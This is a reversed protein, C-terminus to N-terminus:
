SWSINVFLTKRIPNRGGTIIESINCNNRIADVALLATAYSFYPMLLRKAKKVIFQGFTEESRDRYTIGGLVFFVQMFCATLATGIIPIGGAHSAVVLVICFGKVADIYRKKTAVVATTGTVTEAM